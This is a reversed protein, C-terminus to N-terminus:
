LQCLLNENIKYLIVVANSPSKILKNKMEYYEQLVNNVSVFDDHNNYSDILAKSILVKIANLM